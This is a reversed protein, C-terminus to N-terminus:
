SCSILVTSVYLTLSLYLLFLCRTVLSLSKLIFYVTKLFLLLTHLQSLRLPLIIQFTRSKKYTVSHSGQNPCM